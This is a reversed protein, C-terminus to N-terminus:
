LYAHVCICVSVYVCTSKFVIHGRIVGCIKESNVSNECVWMILVEWDSFIDPYMYARVRLICSVSAYGHVCMNVYVCNWKLCIHLVYVQCLMRVRVCVSRDIQVYFGTYWQLEISCISPHIVLKLCVVLVFPKSPVAFQFFDSLM